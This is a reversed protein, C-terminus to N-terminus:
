KSHAIRDMYMGHENLDKYCDAYAGPTMKGIYGSMWQILKDARLLPDVTTPCETPPDPLPMWYSADRLEDVCWGANPHYQGVCQFSPLTFYPPVYLLVRTGDTPATAIPQWESM